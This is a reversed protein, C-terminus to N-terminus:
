VVAMHVEMGSETEWKVRVGPAVFYIAGEGLEFMKGDAEMKGSGRTVIMVGPGDGEEIEDTEGAKLAAKLMNFESMPPAYVRTKGTNSKATKVDRLLVDGTSHAKFTLTDTFMDINNRDAPPCFGSNLVNNSRAMCEVIDGSLYAHIGDAPIFLAEGPELTMFNMCTLAVLSGPDEPGYQEQLRQLLDPIYAARAQAFDSKPTKLLLDQTSKVTAEDAKLLNRTVERLTKDTWQTAHTDAPVFPRLAPLNFLPAIEALPKFGAFVEFKSLAVAIEPKHNPDTFNDPDRVHLQAALDKNPHIQLPLAKAISLIKPLFPLQGGFQEIVKKGLLTEQNKDLVDKLLEGTKLVRAPYDPYDGFWMESYFEDDKIQFSPDTKKCLQAALSQQGQKGWPYNNCSGSLQFVRDTM